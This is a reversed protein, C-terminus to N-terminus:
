TLIGLFLFCETPQKTQCMQLLLVLTSFSKSFRVAQRRAEELTLTM